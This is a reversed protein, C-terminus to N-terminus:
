KQHAPKPQHHGRFTTPHPPPQRFTAAAGLRPTLDAYCVSCIRTLPGVALREQCCECLPPLGPPRHM